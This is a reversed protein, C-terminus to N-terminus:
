AASPSRVGASRTPSGLRGSSRATSAPSRRARPPPLVRRDVLDGQAEVLLEYAASVLSRGAGAVGTETQVRKGVRIAQQFLANLVTGVTGQEQCMILAGRVQGLIQSEGLVVSDLGSAVSFAHAVAGEDFFVRAMARLDAVPEGALDSLALVADDLGGHFRSVSVWLETRNCTSLVVAEDIHESDVLTQALKGATAPDLALAALRAMSTSRHSVSVALIGM